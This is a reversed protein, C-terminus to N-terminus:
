KGAIQDATRFEMRSLRKLQFITFGILLSGLIWAMATAYGFRLYLFANFFIQLGVVETAGYPRYPGGGTMAFIFDAQKFAGVTAGVFNIILLGKLSPFVINWIRSFFGAGDVQAAEYLDSPITKLAALYILCGPGTGAWITPLICCLLATKPDSLWDLDSHIGLLSILQNLLGYPHFFYRWLFVVLLGSIFAPLYYVTRFLVTGRPLESLMIALFVPMLFGFGLMLAAYKVTVWMANWFQPDFLVMAFNYLGVTKHHGMISYNQFAMVMGRVLPYYQWLAISGVAPILMLYARRYKWFQWRRAAQGPLPPPTLARVIFRLALAMAIGSATLFIWAVTTRKRLKEPAIIGVMKENTVAVGVDLIEKIRKRVAATQGEDFLKRIAPDTVVQSMPRGTEGYVIDCNKQYPEPVGNEWCTRYAEIWQPSLNRYIDDYGYRLLVEPEVLHGYGNKVMVDTRIKEVTRSAYFTLFTWAAERRERPLGSFIGYMLCNLESARIGKSSKPFPAIGTVEPDVQLFRPHLYATRYADETIAMQQVEGTDGVYGRMERGNRTWRENFFRLLLYAADVAAESNFAAEYQDPGVSKMYDAGMTWLFNRCQYGLTRAQSSLGFGLRGREPDILIKCWEIMEEWSEPGRDPLGKQKHWDRRYLLGGIVQAVPLCYVHEKGDPGRRRIVNWVKPHLRKRLDEWLGPVSDIFEDLPYLLGQAIYTESKRHNVYLLDPPINGAIQMLPVIDMASTGGAAVVLGTSPGIRIDRHNEQFTRVIASNVRALLSGGTTDLQFQGVRLQLVKEGACADGISVHILAAM